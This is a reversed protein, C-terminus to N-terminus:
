CVFGLGPRRINAFVAPFLVIYSAVLLIRAAYFNIANNFGVAVAQVSLALLILWGFKLRINSSSAPPTTDTDVM